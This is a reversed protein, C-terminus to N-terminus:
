LPKIWRSLGELESSLREIEKLVQTFRNRGNGMEIEEQHRKLFNVMCKKESRATDIWHSRIDQEIIDVAEDVDNGEYEYDPSVNTSLLRQGNQYVSLHCSYSVDSPHSFDFNGQRTYYKLTLDGGNIVPIKGENFTRDKVQIKTATAM